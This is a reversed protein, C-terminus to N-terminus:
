FTHSGMKGGPDPSSTHHMHGRHNASEHIEEQDKRPGMVKQSAAKPITNKQAVNQLIDEIRIRRNVIAQSNTTSDNLVNM